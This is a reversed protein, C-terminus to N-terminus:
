CSVIEKEGEKLNTFFGDSRVEFCYYNGHVISDTTPDRYRVELSNEFISDRESKAFDAIINYSRGWSSESVLEVSGKDELGQCEFVGESNKGTEMAKRFLIEGQPTYYIIGCVSPRPDAGNVNTLVRLIAYGNTDSSVDVGAFSIDVGNLRSSELDYYTELINSEQLRSDEIVEVPRDGFYKELVDEEFLIPDLKKDGLIAGGVSVSKWTQGDYYQIQNVLTNYRVFELTEVSGGSNNFSPIIIDLFNIEENLYIYAGFGVIALVTITLALLVTLNIQARKM